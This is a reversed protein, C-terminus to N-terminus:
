FALKELLEDVEKLVEVQYEKYEKIKDEVDDRYIEIWHLPKATIRPDYFVFFLTEQDPNVIFYQLYQEEYEGPVEQEFYAQLHRAASLCKVEVGYKYKKGVKIMGDPSVAINPNDESVCFGIRDVVHGTHKSFADVADQELRHGREMPDEREEEVALRDAILEYFGLKKKTGRKVIIHKLKSGTIKGRRIDKWEPSNQDIDNIIKM